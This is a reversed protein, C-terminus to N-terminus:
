MVVGDDDVPVVVNKGPDHVEAVVESHVSVLWRVARRGEIGGARKGPERKRWM